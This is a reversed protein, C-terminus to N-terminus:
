FEVTVFRAPRSGVNRFQHAAAPFWRAEGAALHIPSPQVAADDQLDLDTVAVLLMDDRYSSGLFAQGANLMTGGLTIKGFGLAWLAPLHAGGACGCVAREVGAGCGCSPVAGRAKIAILVGKATPSETNSVTALRFEPFFRADGTRMEATDSRERGSFTVAADNLALWIVDHTGQFAAARARAPLEISYVAVQSNEFVSNFRAETPTQALLAVAAALLIAIPFKRSM